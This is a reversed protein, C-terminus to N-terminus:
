KLLKDKDAAIKFKELLIKHKFNVAMEKKVKKRENFLYGLYSPILGQEGNESVSNRFVAGCGSVSWDMAKFYNRLDTVSYIKGRFKITVGDPDFVGMCALFYREFPTETIDEIASEQYKGDYIDLRLALKEEKNGVYKVYESNILTTKTLIKSKEKAERVNNSLGIQRYAIPDDDLFGVLSEISANLLRLVNPYMSSFDVASVLSKKKLEQEIDWLLKKKEAIKLIIEEKNM